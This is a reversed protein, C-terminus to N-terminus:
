HELGFDLISILHEEILADLFLWFLTRNRVDIENKDMTVWLTGQQRDLMVISKKLNDLDTHQCYEFLESLPYAELDAVEFGLDRIIVSLVRLAFVERGNLFAKNENPLLHKRWYRVTQPRISLLGGIVQPKFGLLDNFSM